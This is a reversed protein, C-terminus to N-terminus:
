HMEGLCYVGVVKKNDSMESLTVEPCEYVTASSEMHYYHGKTPVACTPQEQNCTLTYHSQSGNNYEGSVYLVVVHKENTEMSVLMVNDSVAWAVTTIFLVFLSGAAAKRSM